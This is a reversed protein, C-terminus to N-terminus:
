PPFAPTQPQRLCPAMAENVKTQNKKKYEEGEGNTEGSSSLCVTTVAKSLFSLSFVRSHM